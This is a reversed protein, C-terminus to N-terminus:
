LICYHLGTKMLHYHYKQTRHGELIAKGKVFKELVLRLTQFHKCIVYILGDQQTPYTGLISHEVTM